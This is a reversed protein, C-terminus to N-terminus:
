QKLPMPPCKPTGFNLRVKGQCYGCTILKMYNLANPNKKVNKVNGHYHPRNQFKELPQFM